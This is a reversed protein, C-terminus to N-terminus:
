SQLVFGVKPIGSDTDLGQILRGEWDVAIIQDPRLFGKNVGSPTTLLFDNCKVSVNGDCGAILNKQHMMRCITVIEEKLVQESEM